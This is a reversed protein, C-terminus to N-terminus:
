AASSERICNLRQVFAEFAAAPLAPSFLYGQYAHCGEAELFARQGETEVGEALTSLNLSRGLAVITRVISADKEGTLVDRVFSQDIKLQDLPLRKLQSLSSYGTGFDDMSFTVGLAKVATMKAITEDVKEVMFSETIELKLNRPNAGSEYLAEAVLQVFRPDLFQRISVNVAVKLEATQPARAWAALQTCATQLVWYGLEVILGSSEALPIFEGPSVMGRQPHRWRLLAECGTVVRRSDVQPQYHLEFEGNLLARKLDALLEARASACTELSPDFFCVTNRGQAKAQYMALDVRKLLDDVTEQAGGFLTAGISATGEFQYHPLVYPARCAELISVAVAGSEEMATRHDGGLNEILVVFEDGGFRAVSDGMRVCGMLRCAVEKLLLDGMDHGSSDNLTKFDDLDILLLAGPRQRERPEGLIRELRERLLARNGLGTLADHFALKYIRAEAAKRETIDTNIVLISHPEGAENRVLTCRSEVILTKGYKDKKILEGHWEGLRVVIDFAERVDALSSHFLDGVRCGHAEDASWGFLRQAGQNWYRVRSELDQVFIADQAKNLLDSQEHLRDHALELQRRALVQATINRFYVSLRKPQPFCRMEYWQGETAQVEFVTTASQAGAERLASLITLSFFHPAAAPIARHLVAKRERAIEWCAADNIYVLRFEPNLSLFCDSISELVESEIRMSESHERETFYAERYQTVASLMLGFCLYSLCFAVVVYVSQQSFVAVVRSFLFSVILLPGALIVVHLARGVAPSNVLKNLMLLAFAWFLYVFLSQHNGNGVLAILAGSCIYVLYFCVSVTAITQIAQKRYIFPTCLMALAFVGGSLVIAAEIGRVTGSHIAVLGLGSGALALLAATLLSSRALSSSSEDMRNLDHM